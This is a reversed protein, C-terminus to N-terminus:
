NWFVICTRFHKNELYIKYQMYYHIRTHPPDVPLIKIQKNDYDADKCIQMKIM